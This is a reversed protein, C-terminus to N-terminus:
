ANKLRRVTNLKYDWASFREKASASLADQPEIEAVWRMYVQAPISVREAHIARMDEVTAQTLPKLRHLIRRAHYEPANDLSLYYPYDHGVIRNNATVIFGTDPNHLRAVAEFPIDDQWEYEGTWGPVPLWANAISRIPVKGRNLYGINGHVDAFV